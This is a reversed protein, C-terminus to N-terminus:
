IKGGGAKGQAQGIAIPGIAIPRLAGAERMSSSSSGVGEQV